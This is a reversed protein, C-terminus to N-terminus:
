VDMCWSIFYVKGTLTHTIVGQGLSKTAAEDGTCKKYYSKDKLM